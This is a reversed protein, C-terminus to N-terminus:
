LTLNSVVFQQSALAAVFTGLITLSSQQRLLKASMAFFVVILAAGFGYGSVTTGWTLFLPSLAFLAISFLPVSKCAVHSSIWAACIFVIGAAFGFTRLAGDSDGFLRIYYRIILPVLPPFTQHDFYEMIESHTPMTALAVTGSEDRWLGGAHRLRVFLFFIAIATLLIAISWE